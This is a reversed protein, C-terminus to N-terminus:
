RKVGKKFRNDQKSIYRKSMEFSVLEYGDITWKDCGISNIYTLAEKKRFFAHVAIPIFGNPEVKEMKSLPYYNGDWNGGKRKWIWFKM